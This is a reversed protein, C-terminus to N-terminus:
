NIKISLDNMGDDTEYCPIIIGLKSAIQSDDFQFIDEESFKNVEIYIKIKEEMEKLYNEQEENKIKQKLSHIYEQEIELHNNNMAIDNIRQTLNKLKILIFSIENSIKVIKAEVENKEKINTEKENLLKAKHDNLKNIQKDFNSKTENLKKVFKIQEEANKKKENQIEETNDRKSIKPEYDYYNYGIEHKEKLCGCEYCKKYDFIGWSFVKCRYFLSFNCDCPM